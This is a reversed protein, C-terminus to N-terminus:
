DGHDTAGVAARRGALRRFRLLVRLLLRGRRRQVDSQVTHVRGIVGSPAPREGGAFEVGSVHGEDRFRLAHRRRDEQGLVGRAGLHERGDPCCGLLELDAVEEEQAVRAVAALDVVDAAFFIVLEILRPAEVVALQDVILQVELQAPEGFADPHEHQGVATVASGHRTGHRRGRGCRALPRLQHRRVDRLLHVRIVLAEVILELAIVAVDGHEGVLDLLVDRFLAAIRLVQGRQVLRLGLLKPVQSLSILLVLVGTARVQSVFLCGFQNWSRRRFQGM